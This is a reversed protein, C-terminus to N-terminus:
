DHKYDIKRQGGSDTSEDSDFSSCDQNQEQKRFIVQLNLTRNKSRKRVIEPIGYEGM